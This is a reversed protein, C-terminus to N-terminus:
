SPIEDEFIQIGVRPGWRAALVVIVPEKADEIRRIVADNFKPCPPDVVGKSMPSLGLVPPCVMRTLQEVKWERTGTAWQTVAPVWQDAHSDGWVIVRPAGPPALCAPVLASSDGGVLCQMQMPPRDASADSLRRDDPMYGFKAAAFTASTAATVTFIAAAGAAVVAGRRMTRARQRLPNEYVLVTAYAALLTAAVIGLRQGLPPEGLELITAFALPPWHWLYWAYSVKGISVAPRISLARAIPNGGDLSNGAVILGTGGAALLGLPWPFQGGERTVFLALVVLALGAGAALTGLGRGRMGTPQLLALCSGLGLEWFRAFPSYFALTPSRPNIWACYACSLLTLGAIVLLCQARPSFRRWRFKNALMLVVPWVLYYQEEVGLSWTHLLPMQSSATAFYNGTAFYFYINACFLLAAVASKTLAHVEYLTSSLLIAGM